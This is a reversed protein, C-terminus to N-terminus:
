VKVVLRLIDILDQAKPRLIGEKDAGILGRDVESVRSVLM